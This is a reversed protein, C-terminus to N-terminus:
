VNARRPREDPPLYDQLPLPKLGHKLDNLRLNLAIMERKTFGFRDIHSMDSYWDTFYLGEEDPWRGIEKEGKYAIYYHQGPIPKILKM